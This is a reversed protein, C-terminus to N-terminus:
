PMVWESSSGAHGPRLTDPHRGYVQCDNARATMLLEVLGDTVAPGWGALWVLMARTGPSLEHPGQLGSARMIATLNGPQGLAGPGPDIPGSM